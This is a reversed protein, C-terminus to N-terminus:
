GLVEYGGYVGYVCETVLYRTTLTWKQVVQRYRHGLFTLKLAWQKRHLYNQPLM